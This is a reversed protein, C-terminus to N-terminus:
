MCAAVLIPGRDTYAYMLGEPRTPDLVRGDTVYAPNFYHKIVERGHHHPAYGAARADALDAFRELGRKTDAVLKNAAASQAPTPQCPGTPHEHPGTEGHGPSHGHVHGASHAHAASETSAAWNLAAVSSATVLITSLVLARRAARAGRPNPTGARCGQWPCRSPGPHTRAPSSINSRPSGKTILGLRTWAAGVVGVAVTIIGVFLLLHGPNSLTFLGEQDALEPTRAHLTADWILGTLLLALEVVGLGLFWGLGRLGRAPPWEASRTGDPPALKNSM